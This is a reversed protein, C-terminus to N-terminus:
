SNTKVTKKAERARKLAEIRAKLLEVRADAEEQAREEEMLRDMILEREEQEKRRQKQEETEEETGDVQAVSEASTLQPFAAESAENALEAEAFVTARQYAAVKDEEEETSSPNLVSAQFREWELDVQSKPALEQGELTKSSEPQAESNEDDEEIDGIQPALSPDSFFDSPLGNSQSKVSAEGEEHHEDLRKKKVEHVEDQSTAKRKSLLRKEEETERLKSVATRHAKSGVHGEWMSSQKIITGCASCRLQGSKSYSAYPHSIRTEQRKARLLARADAMTIFHSTSSSYAQKPFAFM